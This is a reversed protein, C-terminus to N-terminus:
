LLPRHMTRRHCRDQHAGPFFLNVIPAGATVLDLVSEDAGAVCIAREGQAVSVFQGRNQQLLLTDEGRVLGWFDRPTRIPTAISPQWASVLWYPQRKELLTPTPRFRWSARSRQDQSM